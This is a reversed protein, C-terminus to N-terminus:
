ELVIAIVPGTNMYALTTEFAKEGRRSVMQSITEYHYYYFDRNPKKMKVGVIKLGVKEFRNVIEGVLGRSVADPKLLILSREIM